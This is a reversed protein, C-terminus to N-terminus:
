MREFLIYMKRTINELKNTISFDYFVNTIEFIYEAHLNNNICRNVYSRSKGLARSAEHKSEYVHGYACVKKSSRKVGQHLIMRDYDDIVLVGTDVRIAIRENRKMMNDIDNTHKDLNCDFCCSVTNELVYGLSPVARDIGFWTTPSRKCYKCNNKILVDWEDNTLIFPVERKKASRKYHCMSPKTKNEFWIDTIDDVYEGRARYYAKRIFTAPDAAGKSNNCGTCSAVCNDLTHDLTSEIRDITTSIGGCYFCGKIMMAFMIDSTFDDSYSRKNHKAHRKIEKCWIDWKHQELIEGSTISNIAHQNLDERLKSQYEKLKEQNDARYKADNEKRM